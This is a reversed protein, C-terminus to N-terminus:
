CAKLPQETKGKAIQELYKGLLIMAIVVASSEFYVHQNHIPFLSPAVTVLLSYGYAATTGIAVLSDMDPTLKLLRRLGTKYFRLGPGFQVPTALALMIGNWAQMPLWDMMLDMLSPIVMPLMSILFLPIAFVMAIIFDRFLRESELAQAERFNATSQHGSLEFLQYGIKDIQTKIEEFRWDDHDFVVTVQQNGLNASVDRVFDMQRFAQEVRNVCAACHMGLLGFQVTKGM